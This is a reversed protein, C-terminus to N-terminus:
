KRTGLAWLVAWVSGRTCNELLREFSIFPPKRECSSSLERERAQRRTGPSLRCLSGAIKVSRCTWAFDRRRGSTAHDWRVRVAFELIRRLTWKQGLATWTIGLPFLQTNVLSCSHLLQEIDSTSHIAAAPEILPFCIKGIGDRQLWEGHNLFGHQVSM